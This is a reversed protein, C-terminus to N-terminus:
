FVQWRSCKCVYNDSKGLARSADRRNEYIKGYACTKKALTQTGRHLIVKPCNVISIDGTDVRSAILENRKMMTDVDATHKATQANNKARYKAKNNSSDKYPM